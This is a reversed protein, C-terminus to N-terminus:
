YLPKLTVRRRRARRRACRGDDPRRGRARRAQRDHPPQRDGSRSRVPVHRGPDRTGDLATKRFFLSALPGLPSRRDAEVAAGLRARWREIPVLPIETGTRQLRAALERNSLTEANGLHYVNESSEGALALAVLSRSVYEASVLNWRYPSDPFADIRRCASVFRLVFDPSPLPGTELIWPPRFITVAFGRERAAHMLAEGVWKTQAYGAPLAEPFVLAASESAVGPGRAPSELVAGTSTYAIRKAAGTAAFELVRRVGGVNVRRLARYAQLFNLRAANHFVLEVCDALREYADPTLGFHAASVDGPLAEIRGAVGAADVGIARLREAIRLRAGTVDDARVICVITSDTRALLERLMYTGVLGTAGTLLVDRGRPM